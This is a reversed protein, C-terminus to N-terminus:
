KGLKEVVAARDVNKIKSSREHLTTAKEAYASCFGDVIAGTYLAEAFSQSIYFQDRATRLVESLQKALMADSQYEFAECLKELAKFLEENNKCSEDFVAVIKERKEAAKLQKGKEM